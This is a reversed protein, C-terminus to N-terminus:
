QLSEEEKKKAFAFVYLFPLGLFIPLAYRPHGFFCPSALCVLLSVWLPLAAVLLSKEKIRRQCNSYFFLAWVAMGVNQLVGLLPIREAFRYLFILVKDANEFLLGQGIEEYQIEYRIANSINPSFWGYVHHFFAEFYVAPHKFFCKFWTGFYDILEGTTADKKFLMKIPDALDPNYCGALGKVDGLVTEIAQREEPELEAQYEKVYRATQQFFLSLIEGRSGATADCATMLISTCISGVVAGAVFQVLVSQIREKWGYKKYTVVFGGIGSLVILPLGNNRLLIVAVQLGVFGLVFKTKKLLCPNELLLAYCILYGMVAAVFPVDKIATSALNSYIPTLIYLLMLCVLVKFSVKRKSLVAVTAAMAAALMMSQLWVYIFLGVEYSGFIIKGLETIGGAILTHFLPHHSSFGGSFIVQEIQGVVDWCLNGPYSLILVPTYALMIIGFAKGFAHKSFFHKEESIFNAKALVKGLLGMVTKFFVAYGAVVLIFKIFNVGSGFCYSWNGAEYYSRGIQLCVGFFVALLGNGKEPKGVKFYFFSLLGFTLIFTFDYNGLLEYITATIFDMIEYHERILPVHFVTLFAYATLFAKLLCLCVERSKGQLYNKNM